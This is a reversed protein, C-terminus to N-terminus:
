KEGGDELVGAATAYAVLESRTSLGLKKYLRARYTEVTRVGLRLQAATEPNTFGRAISRLLEIERRSLNARKRKQAKEKHLLTDLLQDRLRADIYRRGHHVQRVAEVLEEETAHKLVYGALGAAILGRVSRQNDDGSVMLVPIHPFEHIRPLLQLKRPVGMGADQVVVTPRSYGCARTLDANTGAEAVVKIEPSSSLIRRLGSRALQFESAIAM